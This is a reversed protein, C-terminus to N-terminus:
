NFSNVLFYIASLILLLVFFSGAWAFRRKKRYLCTQAYDFRLINQIHSFAHVSKKVFEIVNLENTLKDFESDGDNEYASFLIIKVDPYDKALQKIVGIGNMLESDDSSQLYYDLILYTYKSNPYNSGCHEMLDKGNSFRVINYENNHELLKDYLLQSQVQDDEVIFIKIDKDKKM